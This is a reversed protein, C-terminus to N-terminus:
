GLFQKTAVLKAQARGKDSLFRPPPATGDALSAILGNLPPLEPLVQRAGALDRVAKAAMSRAADEKGAERLVQVGAARILGRLVQREAGQTPLWITELREHTEFFLGNDFLVLAQSLPKPRDERMAALVRRYRPLRDALWRRHTKTLPWAGVIEAAKEVQAPDGRDLAAILATSVLNRLDRALRDAFPDFVAKSKESM